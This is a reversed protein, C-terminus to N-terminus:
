LPIKQTKTFAEVFLGDNGSNQWSLHKNKIARLLAVSVLKRGFDSQLRSWYIGFEPETLRNKSGFHRTFFLEGFGVSNEREGFGLFVV